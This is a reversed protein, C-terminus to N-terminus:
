PKERAIARLNEMITRNNGTLDVLRTELDAIRLRLVVDPNRMDTKLRATSAAAQEDTGRQQNWNSVQMGIFVGLVVIVLDIGIATWHQHKLHEVARRLIM